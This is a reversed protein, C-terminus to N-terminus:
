GRHLEDPGPYAQSGDELLVHFLPKEYQEDDPEMVGLVVGRRGTKLEIEEGVGINNWWQTTRAFFAPNVAVSSM